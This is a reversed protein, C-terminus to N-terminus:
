PAPILMLTGRAARDRMEFLCPTCILPVETYVTTACFPSGPIPAAKVRAIGVKRDTFKGCRPCTKM